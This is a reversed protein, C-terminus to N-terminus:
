CCHRVDGILLMKPSLRTSNDKRTYLFTVGILVGDRHYEFHQKRITEIHPFPFFSEDGVPREECDAFMKMGGSDAFLRNM